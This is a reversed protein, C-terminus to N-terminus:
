FACGKKHFHNKNALSHFSMGMDFASCEVENQYLSGTYSSFPRTGPPHFVLRPPGEMNSGEPPRIPFSGAFVDTKGDREKGRPSKARFKGLPSPRPSVSTKM